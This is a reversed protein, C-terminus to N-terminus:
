VSAVPPGQSVRERVQKMGGPAEWMSEIWWTAGAEAFPAVKATAEQPDAPTVGEVVIDFPTDAKRYRAVLAAIERVDDPTLEGFGEPVM